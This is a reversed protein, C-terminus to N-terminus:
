HATMAGLALVALATEDEDAFRVYMAIKRVDAELGHVLDSRSIPETQRSNHKRPIHKATQQTPLKRNISTIKGRNVSPKGMFT